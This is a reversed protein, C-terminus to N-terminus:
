PNSPEEQRPGSKSALLPSLAVLGLVILVVGDALLTAWAAGVGAFRPALLFLASLNVLCGAAQAYPLISQKGSAILWRTTFASLWQVGVAILLVSLIPAASTYQAGYVLEVLLESFAACGAWFLAGGIALCIYLRQVPLRDEASGRTLFPYLAFSTAQSLVQAGTVFRYAAGYLGTVHASTLASIVVTDLRNAITGFISGVGIHKGERWLREFAAPKNVWRLEFLKANVLWARTSAHAIAGALYALLVGYISGYWAAISALILMLTRAIAVGLLDPRSQDFAVIAHGLTSSFGNVLLVVLALFVAVSATVDTDALLCVLGGLAFMVLAGRSLVRWSATLVAQPEHERDAYMKMAIEGSGFLLFVSLLGAVSLGLVLVGLKEPGLGRAVIVDVALQAIITFLQVAITSGALKAIRMM